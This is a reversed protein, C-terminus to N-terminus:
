GSCHRATAGSRAERPRRDSLWSKIAAKNEKKATTAAEVAATSAAANDELEAVRAQSTRLQLLAEVKTQADTAEALSASVEAERETAQRLQLALDAGSEAPQSPGPIDITDDEVDVSLLEEMASLRQGQM